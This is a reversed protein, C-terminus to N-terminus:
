EARKPLSAWLYTRFFALTRQNASDMSHATFVHGETPYIEADCTFDKLKCLRILQRANVVPVQKDQEGHVILLPPLSQVQSFFENPLLGSWEAVADVDTKQSAAVLAVSAGLDQGALAIKKSRQLPRARLEAVIDEVVQAWRRYNAATAEASTTASLYEPLFVRFGHEAFFRAQLRAFALDAPSSGRLFIMTATVDRTEYVACSVAKGHSMFTAYEAPMAQGHLSSGAVLFLAFVVLRRLYM